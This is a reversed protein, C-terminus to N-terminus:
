NIWEYTKDQSIEYQTFYWYFLVNNKNEVTQNLSSEIANVCLAYKVMTFIFLYRTISSFIIPFYCIDSKLQGIITHICIHHKLVNKYHCQIQCNMNKSSSFAQVDIMYKLKLHQNILWYYLILQWRIPYLTSFIMYTDISYEDVFAKLTYIIVFRVKYDKIFCTM